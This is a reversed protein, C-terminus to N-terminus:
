YPGTRNGLGPQFVRFGLKLHELTVNGPALHAPVIGPAHFFFLRFQPLEDVLSEGLHQLVTLDLAQDFAISHGVKRWELIGSSRFIWSRFVAAVSRGTRRS